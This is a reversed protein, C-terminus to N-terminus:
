KKTGGKEVNVMELIGPVYGSGIIKATLREKDLRKVFFFQDFGSRIRILNVIDVHIFEWAVPLVYEDDEAKREKFTNMGSGSPYFEYYSDMNADVEATKNKWYGSTLIDRGKIDKTAFTSKYKEYSSFYLTDNYFGKLLLSDKELAIIKYRNFVIPNDRNSIHLSGDDLEWKLKYLIDKKDYMNLYSDKFEVIVMDYVDSYSMNVWKGEIKKSTATHQCNSLLLFNILLPIFHKM